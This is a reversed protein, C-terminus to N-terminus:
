MPPPPAEGFVSELQSTLVTLTEKGGRGAVGLALPFDKRVVM